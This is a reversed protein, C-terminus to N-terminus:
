ELLKNGDEFKAENFLDKQGSYFINMNLIDEAM